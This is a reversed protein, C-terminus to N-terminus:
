MHVALRSGVQPCDSSVASFNRQMNEWPIPAHLLCTQQAVRCVEDAGIAVDAQGIGFAAYRCDIRVEALFIYSRYISRPLLIFVRRAKMLNRAALGSYAPNAWRPRDKACVEPGSEGPRGASSARM